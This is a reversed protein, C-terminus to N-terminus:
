YWTGQKKYVLDNVDLVMLDTIKMRLVEFCFPSNNKQSKTRKTEAVKGRTVM